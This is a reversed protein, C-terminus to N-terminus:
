DRWYVDGEAPEFPYKQRLLPEQEEIFDIFDKRQKKIMQTCRRQSYGYLSVVKQFNIKGVLYKFFVEHSKGWNRIANYLEVYYKRENSTWATSSTVKLYALRMPIYALYDRLSQLEKQESVNEGRKQALRMRAKECEKERKKEDCLCSGDSLKAWCLGCYEKSM